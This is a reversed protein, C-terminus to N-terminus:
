LAVSSKLQKGGLFAMGRQVSPREELVTFWRHLNPYDDLSLELYEYAAIWPFTAIDAISYDRAIFQHQELQRELVSCLRHTEQEYRRIAYPLPEPASNLFHGLQGFIPGVNAMQFMLWEIVHHRAKPERPLLQGTKEALYLLIAGSEFVTISNERDVITPIKSNPNLVVYEPKFQEGHSLEIKHVTYPLGIEELMIAPKYGNPTAATYLDIM